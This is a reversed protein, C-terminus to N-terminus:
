PTGYGNETSQHTEDIEFARLLDFDAIKATMEKSLLINPLKLDVHIMNKELGNHLYFLGHAIGKIIKFRTVWNLNQRSDPDIM